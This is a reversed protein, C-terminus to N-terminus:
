KIKFVINDYFGRDFYDIQANSNDSNYSDIIIKAAEFIQNADDTLVDEKTRHYTGAATLNEVEKKYETQAINEILDANNTDIADGYIYDIAGTDTTYLNWGYFDIKFNDKRWDKYPKIHEPKLTLTLTFATLYGANRFRLSAKIGCKKLDTLILNKLEKDDRWKHSNGGRWGEYLTGAETTEFEPILLNKLYINNTM